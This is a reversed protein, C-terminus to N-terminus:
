AGGGPRGKAARQLPALRPKPPVKMVLIQDREAATLEYCLLYPVGEQVARALRHWGDILVSTGDHFPVFLIPRSLDATRAYDLDLEPYQSQVQQITLGHDEPWFALPTRGDSLAIRMGASANWHWQIGSADTFTFIQDDVLLVLTRATPDVPM